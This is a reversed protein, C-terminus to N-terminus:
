YRFAAAKEIRSGFGDVGLNWEKPVKDSAAFVLGGEFVGFGGGVCGVCEHHAMAYTDRNQAYEESSLSASWKAALAGLAPDTNLNYGGGTHANGFRPGALPSNGLYWMGTVTPRDWPTEGSEDRSFMRARWETFSIPVRNIKLGIDEWMVAVAEMIEGGEPLGSWAPWIFLDMEFGDPWGADAIMQRALAPDFDPVPIPKFGLDMSTSPYDVSPKGFGLLFADIITQRDIAHYAIAQRVSANALPNPGSGEYETDFQAEIRILGMGFPRDFVTLGSSKAPEISARAIPVIDAEGTRALALRTIEEPVSRFVLTKTRPVGYFFHEYDVATFTVRDNVQASEFAYPGTGMARKNAGDFGVENMYQASLVHNPTGGRGLRSVFDVFWFPSPNVTTYSFTSDDVVEYSELERQFNGSSSLGVGDEGSAWDFNFKIDEPGAEGYKADHFRMGSRTKLTATRGDDSASWETVLGSAPDMIGEDTSGILYDYAGNLYEKSFSSETFALLEFNGLSGLAAVLEGESQPRATATPQPTSTPRPTSTPQPAATPQSAATPQTAATPPPAGTPQPAPTATDDAGGGCAAAVLSVVVAGLLLTKLRFVRM